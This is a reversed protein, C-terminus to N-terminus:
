RGYLHKKVNELNFAKKSASKFQRTMLVVFKGDDFRLKIGYNEESIAVVYADTSKFVQEDLKTDFLRWQWPEMPAM